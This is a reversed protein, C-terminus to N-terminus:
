KCGVWADLVFLSAQRRPQVDPWGIDKQIELPLSRIERETRRRNRATAYEAAFRGITSIVSM